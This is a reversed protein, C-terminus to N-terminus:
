RQEYFFTKTQARDLAESTPMRGERQAEKMAARVQEPSDAEVEYLALYPTPGEQPPDTQAMEYRQISKMGDVALVDAAHVNDYWDNYEAERGEVPGTFVVYVYKAM